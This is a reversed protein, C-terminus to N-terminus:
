RLAELYEPGFWQLFHIISPCLPLSVKHSIVSFLEYEYEGDYGIRHSGKSSPRSQRKEIISSAIYPRVDLTVPFSVFRSIKSFQRGNADTEFRKLHLALVLPLTRLSLQKVSERVCQCKECKLKMEIDLKEPTTFRELCEGLSNPGGEGTETKLQNSYLDLSIDFFPDIVTSVHNCKTCIVDSRMHGGFVQHVICSCDTLTGQNHLHLSDLASILFEHADQQEYGALNDWLRWMKHLFDSPTHPVKQGSFMQTYLNDLACAMCDSKSEGEASTKTCFKPNHQDSLFYNRLLPNHVLSQLVCNMFCTNGMNNLGRLGQTTKSIKIRTGYKTILDSDASSEQYDCRLDALPKPRKRGLKAFEELAKQKEVRNITVFSPHILTRDCTQCFLTGMSFNLSIHHGKEMAHKQIHGSRRCAMFICECCLQIQPDPGKCLFCRPYPLKSPDVLRYMVTHRYECIKQLKSPGATKLFLDLHECSSVLPLRNLDM